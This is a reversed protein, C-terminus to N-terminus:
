KKKFHILYHDAAWAGFGLEGIKDEARVLWRLLRKRKIFFEELYSPPILLGIPRVMQLQFGSFMKQVEGPSYYWTTVKAHGVQAKSLGSRRRFAKKWKGKSLFYVHEWLCYRPMLIMILHTHKPLVEALMTAFEQLNEPNLMNLAGFNSFVLDPQWDLAYQRVWTLADATILEVKASAGAHEINQRAKRVMFRSPDIAQVRLRWKQCFFIADIGTGCGIDSVRDIDHRDLISPLFSHVRARQARGIATQSFQEDYDNAIADFVGQDSTM